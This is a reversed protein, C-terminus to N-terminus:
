VFNLSFNINSSISKPNVTKYKNYLEPRKSKLETTIDSPLTNTQELRNLAANIQTQIKEKFLNLCDAGKASVQETTYNWMNASATININLKLSNNEEYFEYETTKEMVEAFIEPNVTLTGNFATKNIWMYGYAEDENLNGEYKNNKVVAMGNFAPQENKITILPILSPSNEATDKLLTLLSEKNVYTKNNKSSQYFGFIYFGTTLDEAPEAEMLEKVNDSAAIYINKDIQANHSLYSTLESFAQPSKLLDTSVIAAKTQGFYITKSSSFDMASVAESLTNGSSTKIIRSPADDKENKPFSIYLTYGDTPSYDAAMATAFSRSELDTDDYCATLLM